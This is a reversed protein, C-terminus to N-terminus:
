WLGSHRLLGAQPRLGKNDLTFRRFLVSPTRMAICKPVSSGYFLHIEASAGAALRFVSLSGESYPKADNLRRIVRSQYREM